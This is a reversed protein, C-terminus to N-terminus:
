LFFGFNKGENWIAESFWGQGAFYQFSSHYKMLDGSLFQYRFGSVFVHIAAMLIIYYKRQKGTQPMVYGLILTAAVIIMYISRM